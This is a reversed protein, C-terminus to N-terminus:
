EGLIFYRRFLHWSPRAKKEGSRATRTPAPLHLGGIVGRGTHAAPGSVPPQGGSFGGVGAWPLRPARQQLCRVYMWPDFTGFLAGVVVLRTGGSYHM